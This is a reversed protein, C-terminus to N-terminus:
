NGVIYVSQVAGYYTQVLVKSCSGGARVQDIIDDASAAFLRNGQSTYRVVKAGAINFVNNNHIIPDGELRLQIFDGQKKYVSGYILRYNKGWDTDNYPNANKDPDLPDSPDSIVRENSLDFALQLQDIENNKDLTYRVADGIEVPYSAFTDSLDGNLFVEKEEGNQFMTLKIKIIGEEDVANVIKSVYGVPSNGRFSPDASLILVEPAFEDDSEKCSYTTFSRDDDNGFYGSTSEIHFGAEDLDDPNAPIRLIITTSAIPVQISKGDVMGYFIKSATKHRFNNARTVMHLRDGDGGAGAACTDVAIIKNEANTKYRILQQQVLRDSTPNAHLALPINSADAEVDNGDIKIKSASELIEFKQEVFSYIRFLICDDLGSKNACEVLYGYVGGVSSSDSVAAIKGDIDLYCEIYQGAQLSENGQAYSPAVEYTEDNIVVQQAGNGGQDSVEQIEGAVMNRSVVMQYLKRSGQYDQGFAVAIVDWEQLESLAMPNGQSDTLTYTTDSDGPELAIQRAPDYKDYLMGDSESYRHLVLNFYSTVFVIDYVGDNNNDLLLVEGMDPCLQEDRYSPAAKGNIIINTEKTFSARRIRDDEWYQYTYDAYDEMDDAKIVLTQNVGSKPIVYRLVPDSEEDQYYYTVTYGLLAEADTDGVEYIVDDIEVANVLRLSGGYVTTASNATITGTAKKLKLGESLLTRGGGAEFVARDGFSVQKLIETDLANYIMRAINGRSVPSGLQLGSDRPVVGENLAVTVYGTPYGGTAAAVDGYGLINVLIKSAQEFTVPDEPAFAGNGDGGIIGMEYALSIANAAPHDAPVDRFPAESVAFAASDFGMAKIVMAVFDARQISRDPRFRGDDAPQVIDLGLLVAVAQEYPTGIVDQAGLLVPSVYQSGDLEPLEPLFEKEFVECEYFGAYGQGGAVGTITVRVYRGTATLEDTTNGAVTNSTKDVVTTFTQGDSSVDITYYYTRGLYWQITVKGITTERGLDVMWWQPYDGTPVAWRSDADGDNGCSAPNDGEQASAEVPQGVSVLIEDYDEASVGMSLGAPCFFCMTLLLSIITIHMTQKM